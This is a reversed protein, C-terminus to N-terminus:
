PKKVIRPDTSAFEQIKIMAKEVLDSYGADQAEKCARVTDDLNQAHNIRYTIQFREDDIEGGNAM